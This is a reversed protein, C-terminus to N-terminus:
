GHKIKLILVPIAFILSVINGAILPLSDIKFGYYLWISMGIIFTVYMPLSIDKTKKTKWTKITQPLFALTTLSAAILGIITTDVM